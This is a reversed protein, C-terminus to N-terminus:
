GEAAALQRAAEAGGSRLQIAQEIRGIRALAEALHHAQEVQEVAVHSEDDM